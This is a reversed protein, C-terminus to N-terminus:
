RQIKSTSITLWPHSRSSQPSGMLGGIDSSTSGTKVSAKANAASTEWEYHSTM